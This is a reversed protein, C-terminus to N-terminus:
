VMQPFGPAPSLSLVRVPVVFRVMQLVQLRILPVRPRLVPRVYGVFPSLPAVLPRVLV